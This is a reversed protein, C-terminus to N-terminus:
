NFVHLDSEVGGQEAVGIDLVPHFALNTPYSGCEVEGVITKADDTSFLAIGYGKSGPIGAGGPPPRYGGGGAIGVKKGDGSVAVARGNQAANNNGGAPTLNTGQITYKLLTARDGALGKNMTFRGGGLDKIVLVDEIRGQIGAYLADGKIPDV